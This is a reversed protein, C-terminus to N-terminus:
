SLALPSRFSINYTYNIRVVNPSLTPCIFDTCYLKFANHPVAVSTCNIWQSGNAVVSSIAVNGPGNVTNALVPKFSFRKRLNSSTPQWKIAGPRGAMTRNSTPVVADDQDWYMWFTPMSGYAAVGAVNSLYEVEVTVKNIKYADFIGAYSAYSAVDQLCFTCAAGWDITNAIGASNSQTALNAQLIPFPGATGTTGTTMSKITGGLDTSLVQPTPRFNFTYNKLQGGASRLGRPVRSRRRGKGKRARRVRRMPM